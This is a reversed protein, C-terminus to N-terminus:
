KKLKVDGLDVVEGPQVVINENISKMAGGFTRLSYSECGTSLDSFEFSGDPNCARTNFVGTRHKAKFNPSALLGAGKIAVGDQDVLRGKITATPLLTITIPDTKQGDFNVDFIKGLQRQRHIVEITRTENPSLNGVDITSPQSRDYRGLSRGIIDTGEVPNGKPDVFTVRITAGPDLEFDCAVSASNEAPNIEMLAEHTGTDAPVVQRYTDFEGKESLGKIKEAGIGKRYSSNLSNAAVIARGPLGPIRYNGGSDTTYHFQSHDMYEDHFEPRNKTFPNDLFPLYLIVAKVPKGTAKDTVKGAIWLGPYMEIDLKTSTVDSPKPVKIHRLQYATEGNSFVQIVNDDGKPMGVLQYRGESDTQTRLVHNRYLLTGALHESEITVGPVGKKTKADVVSGEIIQTPQAPYTFEMGLVVGKLPQGNRFNMETNRTMAPMARTLVDIKQYAITKGRLELTVRREAGIGSLTFRGDQDTILAPQHDDDCAPMHYGLTHGSVQDVAGSKVSELWPGLDEGAKPVYFTDLKLSVGEIPKGELDTIRGRIPADAVLKLILDTSENVEKWNASQFGYGELQAAVWFFADTRQSKPYSVEFRGDAGSITVAVPPRHEIDDPFSRVTVKVGAAPKGDPKLVQGRITCVDGKVEKAMRPQTQKEPTKADNLAVESSRRVEADDSKLQAAVNKEGARLNLAPGGPKQRLPSAGVFGVVSTGVFGGVLTCKLVTRSIGTSLQRSCDLIRTVRHALMSRLSVMAVGAPAMRASAFEAVDVLRLAYEERNGGFKVVFDDCVEEAAMELQRSLMWLLPHFWFITTTLKRLLNWHCDKRLLHALEHILVDDLSLTLSEEPLLVVPNRIGALCPSPLFPTELVEPTRVGLKTASARCLAMTEADAAVARRRIGALRWWAEALRISLWVAISIWLLSFAMLTLDLIETGRYSTEASVKSNRLDILSTDTMVSASLTSPDSFGSKERIMPHSTGRDIIGPANTEFDGTVPEAGPISPVALRNNIMTRGSEDIHARPSKAPFEISWGVIGAQSLCWSLLPCALVAALTVRYIASKVASGHRRLLLGISLGSCILVTSQLLWNVGFQILARSLDVATNESIMWAM